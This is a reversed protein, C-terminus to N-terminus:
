GADPVLGAVLPQIGATDDLPQIGEGLPQIGQGLPQIGQVTADAAAPAMAFLAAAGASAIMSRTRNTSM